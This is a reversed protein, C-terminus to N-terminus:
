IGEKHKNIASEMWDKRENSTMKEWKKRFESNNFWMRMRKVGLEATSVLEETLSTATWRHMGSKCGGSCWAWHMADLQRNRTALSSQLNTIERKLRNVQNELAMEKESKM